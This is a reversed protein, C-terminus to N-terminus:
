WQTMNTSEPGEMARFPAFVAVADKVTGMTVVVDVKVNLEVTVSLLPRTRMGLETTTM